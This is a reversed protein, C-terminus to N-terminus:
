NMKKVYCSCCKSIVVLLLIVGIFILLGVIAGVITHMSQNFWGSVASGAKELEKIFSFDGEIKKMQHQLIQTEKNFIDEAKEFM